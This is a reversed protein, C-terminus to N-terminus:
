GADPQLGATLLVAPLNIGPLHYQVPRNLPRHLSAVRPLSFPLPFRFLHTPLAEAITSKQSLPIQQFVLDYHLAFPEGKEKQLSTAKGWLSNLSIM